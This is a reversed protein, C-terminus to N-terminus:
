TDKGAISPSGNIGRRYIILRMVVFILSGVLSLLGNFLSAIWWKYQSGLLAGSIPGGLLASFATFTFCIGIRAGLESLDPTLVTMLPVILAIYVGSFYGYVLGLLVVSVMDGLAIMSIIIASCALTSVITFNLVGAYTAIIGATCRGIFSAANLISLSYFSFNVDIGHKTSDLQLYFMPFYFGIQFLTAGVTMLVFLVERFCKRAVVTYSVTSVPLERTRVSLCAILLLASVFGASARVGKEFGVTGNLLHNLMIPHIIGGLPIGSTVLSMVLTRKRSFHQSVVAVCPAYILGAGFGSVVGQAM